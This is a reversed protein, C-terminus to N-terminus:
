FLNEAEKAIQQPTLEGNEKNILMNKITGNPEEIELPINEIFKKMELRVCRFSKGHIKYNKFPKSRFYEYHAKKGTMSEESFFGGLSSLGDTKIHLYYTNRVKAIVVKEDDRLFNFFNNDTAYEDGLENILNDLTKCNLVINEFRRHQSAKRTAVEVKFRTTPVEKNLYKNITGNHLTKMYVYSLHNLIKQMIPYRKDRAGSMPIDLSEILKLEDKNYDDAHVNIPYIRRDRLDDLPIAHISNTTITQNYANTKVMGSGKKNAKIDGANTASSKIRKTLMDVIKSDNPVDDFIVTRTGVEYDGWKAKEGDGMNINEFFSDETKDYLYGGALSLTTKGVGRDESFICPIAMIKQTHFTQWAIVIETLSFGVIHTDDNLRISKLLLDVDADGIKSKLERKYSSYRIENLLYGMDDYHNSDQYFDEYIFPNKTVRHIKTSFTILEEIDKNDIVRKLKSGIFAKFSEKNVGNVALYRKKIHFLGYLPNSKESSMLPIYGLGLVSNVIESNFSKLEDIIKNIM